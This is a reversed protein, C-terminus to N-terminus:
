ASTDFQSNYLEAYLGGQALLEEHTGKEIVNGAKMVLIMDADKITSLRHAIVFSTRGTMLHTMATQICSETRTDVSSTAEDLILITPNALIARAITLLQKQGQSINSTEENLITDYGQPLTRIFHDASAAKAAAVVEEFSAHDKGYAINDRISGKFLWTDQLVMGFLRRLNGRKLKTVDVGDIKITGDNVEYFRMLLNIMTTKGAGTPGVIAVTQGQKVDINIDKMLLNTPEYGFKVHEFTVTGKPAELDICDDRDPLEETADLVEFVREASAVTSQLINIINALQNIPQMFQRSYQIFAQIDGITIRGGIALIGGVAAIFVYGINNVFGMLPMILGSLFQAKWGFDYLDNNITDFKLISAQEHGFAKVIRHGAYMEEVHGNLAGLNDQQGMFFKQSRTIIPRISLVGVPLTILMILTLLPSITLMMIVVGIITFTSTILQTLNQQLTNSINDVDNTVISLTDGTTHNDFYKLPLTSLKSTVQNRLEYVTKQAVDAMLYQQLYAFLSSLIYTLALLALIKFLGPFDVGGNPNGQLQLMMGNAISTTAMGLLKPSVVMFVTSLAALVCVIGLRVKRPKFYSLLRKFSGSFDKAKVSGAVINPGMSGSHTNSHQKHSM